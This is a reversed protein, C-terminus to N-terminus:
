VANVATPSVRALQNLTGRITGTHETAAEFILQTIQGKFGVRTRKLQWEQGMAAKTVNHLEYINFGLKKNYADVIITTM